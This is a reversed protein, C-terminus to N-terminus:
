HEPRDNASVYFMVGCMERGADHGPFVPSTRESTDYHCTVQLRTDRSDIVIPEEYFYADQWDYDWNEIELGCSSAGSPSLVRLELATGLTHMHPGVGVLHLRDVSAGEQAELEAWLVEAPLEWSWTADALGADLKADAIPVGAESAFTLPDQFVATIRQAADDALAVRLQTRDGATATEPGVRYHIQLVWLEGPFLTMGSDAPLAVVPSGGVWGSLQSRPRLAGVGGFCSWGPAPDDAEMIAIAEANTFPGLDLSPDVAYLAAHHVISPDGPIYETARLVSPAAIGPDIAFCRYEDAPDQTPAPVYRSPMAVTLADSPLHPTPPLAGVDHVGASPPAGAEAWGVLTEIEEESLWQANRFGRCSGDAVAPIPPMTRARVAAAIAPAWARVDEYEVLSLPSLGGPQHCGVCHSRLVPAVEAFGVTTAPADAECASAIVVLASSGRLRRSWSRARLSM